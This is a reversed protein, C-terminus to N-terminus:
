STLITEIQGFRKWFNICNESIWITKVLSFSKLYDRRNESISFIHHSESLKRLNVCNEASSMIARFQCLKVHDLRNWPIFTLNPTVSLTQFSGSLKRSHLHNQLISRTERFAWLKERNPSNPHILVTQLSAILKSFHGRGDAFSSIVTETCIFSLKLEFLKSWFHFVQLLCCAVSLLCCVVSLMIHRMHTLTKRLM